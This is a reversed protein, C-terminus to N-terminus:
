TDPHAGRDTRTALPAWAPDRPHLCGPQRAARPDGVVTRRRQILTPPSPRSSASLSRNATTRSSLGGGSAGPILGCPVEVRIATVELDAAPHVCGAAATEIEVGGPDGGQPPPPQRIEHRSAIHWRHRATAQGGAHVARPRSRDGLLASPGVIAQGDGVGRRRSRAGALQPIPTSSFRCPPTNWAMACCRVPM